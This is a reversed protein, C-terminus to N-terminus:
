ATLSVSMQEYIYVLARGRLAVQGGRFTYVVGAREGALALGSKRGSCLTPGDAIETEDVAANGVFRDRNRAGLVSVGLGYSHSHGIRSRRRM